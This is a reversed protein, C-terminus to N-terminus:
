KHLYANYMWVLKEQFRIYDSMMSATGGDNAEEAMKMIEREMKIVSYMADVIYQVGDRAASVKKLDKIESIKIYDSFSHQPTGSLTLIREAVEDIKLHLDTYLEEFKLHLEFFKDGKINWHLGRANAYFVQLNALLLNLKKSLLESSKIEIGISNTKMIFYKTFSIIIFYQDNHCADGKEKDKWQSMM